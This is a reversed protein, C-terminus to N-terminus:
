SETRDGSVCYESLMSSIQFFPVNLRIETTLIGNLYVISGLQYIAKKQKFTGYDTDFKIM